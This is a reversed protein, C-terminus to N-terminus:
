YSCAPCTILKRKLNQVLSVKFSKFLFNFKTVVEFSIFLLISVFLYFTKLSVDANRLFYGYESNNQYTNERMPVSYPGFYCRIRVPQFCIEFVFFTLIIFCFFIQKCFLFLLFDIGVFLRWLVSVNMSALRLSIFLCISSIRFDFYVFIDNFSFLADFSSYDPLQM